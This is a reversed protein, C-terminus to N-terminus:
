GLGSPSAAAARKVHARGMERRMDGPSSTGASPLLLLLLLPPVMMGSSRGGSLMTACMRAHM